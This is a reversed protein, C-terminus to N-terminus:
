SQKPLYQGLDAEQPDLHDLGGLPRDWDSLKVRIDMSMQFTNWVIVRVWGVSKAKTLKARFRNGLTWINWVRLPGIGIM